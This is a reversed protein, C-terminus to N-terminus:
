IKIVEIKEKTFLFAHLTSIKILFIFFFQKKKKQKTKNKELKKLGSNTVISCHPEFSHNIPFSHFVVLLIKSKCYELNFDPPLLDRAGITGEGTLHTIITTIKCDQMEMM